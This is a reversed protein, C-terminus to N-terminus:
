RASRFFPEEYLENANLMNHRWNRSLGSLAKPTAAKQLFSIAFLKNQNERKLQTCTFWRSHFEGKEAMRGSIELGTRLFEKKVWEQRAIRLGGNRGILQTWGVDNHGVTM